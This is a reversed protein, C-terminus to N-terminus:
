RYALDLAQRVMEEPALESSDLKEASPWLDMSHSMALRVEPTAESIDADDLRRRVIREAADEASADCCFEILDSATRGALSRAAARWAADVWSADLVVSDGLGLAEEARRLLEQYVATTVSPHYRGELYGSAGASRAGAPSEDLGNRIEDSRIVKWGTVAALGAALTSKGSGPLGGVLLIRVRAKRLHDLALAQLRKAEFQADLAGQVSGLCAVKARVYARSACYHHVLTDPFPDAALEEYDHLFRSAAEGHGLRELDMVLFAVDACVDSYRLRDSFELCDLIRVGDDLCFIDEAQLDGHGDCVSGSAIRADLLPKRGEVWRSALRRIEAEDVEDLITGVFPQAEGFNDEWAARIAQATANASIASTRQAQRHFSVLAEALRHLWPGLDEDGRRALAALRRADPMRRMVVLHDIPEGDMTLDAVGLYVDPALRRNLEVERQCDAQRATRQRFDLFDFQVPKRLKYVHEGVFFLISVHTEVVDAQAPNPLPRGGRREWDKHKGPADSPEPPRNVGRPDIGVVRPLSRRGPDSM